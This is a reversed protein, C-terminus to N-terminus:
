KQESFYKQVNKDIDDNIGEAYRLGKLLTLLNQELNLNFHIPRNADVQPSKGKITLQMRLMGNEEYDIAASLSDYNLDELINLVLDTGPMLTGTKATDGALHYQINGGPERTAIRGDTIKIGKPSIRLPVTGDLRGTASLGDLQQVAIIKALDLNDFTLTLNQQDANLDMELTSASVKGDLLLLKLEEITLIPLEGRSSPDIRINASARTIPVGIDIHEVSLKAFDASKLKPLLEISDRYNLGSFLIGEYHGGADKMELDVMLKERKLGRQTKWWRYSGRASLSGAVIEFPLTWDKVASSILPNEDDPYIDTVHYDARGTSSVPNFRFNSSVESDPWGVHCNFHGGLETPDPDLLKGQDVNGIRLECRNFSLVYSEDEYGLKETEAKMSWKLDEGIPCHGEIQVPAPQIQMDGTQILAATLQMKFQCQDSSKDATHRAFELKDLRAEPVRIDDLILGSLRIETQRTDSLNIHGDSFTLLTPLNLQLKDLTNHEQTAAYLTIQSDPSFGLRYDNKSQIFHGKISAQMELVKTDYFALQTGKASVVFHTQPSDPNSYYSVDAELLGKLTQASATLIGIQALDLRIFGSLGNVGQMPKLRVSLSRTENSFFQIDIGSEPSIEMRTQYHVNRRDVLNTEGCIDQGQKSVETSGSLSLAGEADYLSVKNIILSAMPMLEHWAQGLLGSIIEPSPLSGSKTRSDDTLPFLSLKEIQITKATGNLLGMIQYEIKLGELEIRYDRNSLIAHKVLASKNGVRGIAMEFGTIGQQSLKYRTIETLLTPLMLYAVAIVLLLSLITLSLRFLLKM